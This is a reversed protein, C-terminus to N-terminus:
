SVRSPAFLARYLSPRFPQWTARQFYEYPGDARLRAKMEDIVAQSAYADMSEVKREFAAANAQVEADPPTPFACYVAYDWRVPPAIPEGLEAWIRSSAWCIAMDVEPRTIRHDPHLDAGTCCFV